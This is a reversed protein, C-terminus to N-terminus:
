RRRGAQFKEAFNETKHSAYWSAMRHLKYDSHLNYVQNITLDTIYMGEKYGSAHAIRFTKTSDDYNLVIMIHNAKSLLIDGPDAETVEKVPISTGMDDYDWTGMEGPIDIGANHLVWTVFGACDLGYYCYKGKYCSGNYYAAEGFHENIGYYSLQPFEQPEGSSNKYPHGQGGAWAYPIRAKFQSDMTGLFTTAVAAVADGTGPGAKMVNKFILDNFQTVSYGNKSLFNDIRETLIGSSPTETPTAAVTIPKAKITKIDAQDYFFNLIQEYSQGKEKALYYAGWQSMGKGHFATRYIRLSGETLGNEKAWKVPIKLQKQCITFYEDDESGGCKPSIALADYQSFYAKNDGDNKSTLILGSSERSAIMFPSDDKLFEPDSSFNQDNSSNGISGGNKMKYLAYTRAAIAQSKLLEPSDSFEGVEKVLVGAIYDDINVNQTTGDANRITIYNAYNNSIYEKETINNTKEVEEGNQNKLEKDLEFIILITLIILIIIIVVIIIAAVWPYSAFFAKLGKESTAAEAAKATEAGKKAADSSKKATDAAKKAADANKKADSGKKLDEAAKQAGETTKKADEASTVPNQKRKDFNSNKRYNNARDEPNTNNNNNLRQNHNNRNNADNFDDSQENPNENNNENKASDEGPQKLKNEDEGSGTSPEETQEPTNDKDETSEPNENENQTENNPQESDNVSEQDDSPVDEDPNVNDQPEMDEQPYSQEPEENNNPQTYGEQGQPVSEQGGQAFFNSGEEPQNVRGRESQYPRQAPESGQNVTSASPQQSVVTGAGAVTNPQNVDYQNSSVSEAVTTHPTSTVTERENVTTVNVNSTSTTETSVNVRATTTGGVPASVTQRITAGVPRNVSTTTTGGVRVNVSGPAYTRLRQGIVNYTIEASPIGALFETRVGNVRSTRFNVSLEDINPIRKKIESTFIRAEDDSRNRYTNYDTCLDMLTDYIQDNNKGKLTYKSDINKIIASRIDSNYNNVSENNVRNEYAFDQYLNKESNLLVKDGSEAIGKAIVSSAPAYLNTTANKKAYYDEYSLKNESIYDKFMKDLMEQSKSTDKNFTQKGTAENFYVQFEDGFLECCKKVFDLEDGFVYKTLLTVDLNHKKLVYLIARLENQSYRYDFIDTSQFLEAASGISKANAHNICMEAFVSAASEEFSKQYNAGSDRRFEHAYEHIITGMLDDLEHHNNTSSSVFQSGDITIKDHGAAGASVDSKGTIENKSNSTDSLVVPYKAFAARAKKLTESDSYDELFDIIRDQAMKVVKQFDKQREEGTM